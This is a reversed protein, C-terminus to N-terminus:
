YADPGPVGNDLDKKDHSTHPFSKALKLQENMEIMNKYSGPGPLVKQRGLAIEKLDVDPPRSISYSHVAETFHVPRYKNPAPTEKPLDIFNRGATGFTTRKM